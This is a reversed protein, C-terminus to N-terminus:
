TQLLDLLNERLFPYFDMYKIWINERYLYAEEENRSFLLKGQTAYYCFGLPANNLEHIDVPIGLKGTLRTSLSICIDLRTDADLGEDFYVAIDIDNFPRNEIFSGHIFAFRISKVRKLEKAIKTIVDERQRPNLIHKSYKSEAM